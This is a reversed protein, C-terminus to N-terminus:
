SVARRPRAIFYAPICMTFGFVLGAVGAVPEGPITVRKGHVVTVRVEPKPAALVVLTFAGVALWFWLFFFKFVNWM